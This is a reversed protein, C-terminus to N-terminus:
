PRDWFKKYLACNRLPTRPAHLRPPLKTPTVAAHRLSPRRKTPHTGCSEIGPGYRSPRVMCAPLVGSRPLVGCRSLRVVALCNRWASVSLACAAHCHSVVALQYPQAVGPSPQEVYRTADRRAVGGYRGGPFKARGADRVHIM